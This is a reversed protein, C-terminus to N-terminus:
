MSAVSRVGMLSHSLQPSMVFEVNDCDGTVTMM